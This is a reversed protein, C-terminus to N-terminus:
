RRVRCPDFRLVPRLQELRHLLEPRQREVGSVKGCFLRKCGAQKLTDLQLELHKDVTSVRAYTIKM